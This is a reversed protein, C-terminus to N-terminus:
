RVAAVAEGPPLHHLGRNGGARPQEQTSAAERLRRGSAPTHDHDAGPEGAKGRRELEGAGAEVHGDDFRSAADPSAHQGEAIEDGALDHLAAALQDAGVVRHPLRIGPAESELHEVHGLVLREFRRNEDVTYANCARLGLGEERLHVCGEGRHVVVCPTHRIGVPWPQSIVRHRQILLRHTVPCATQLAGVEAPTGDVRHERCVAAHAGLPLTIEAM